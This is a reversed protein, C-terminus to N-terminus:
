EVLCTAGRGLYRQLLESYSCEMHSILLLVIRLFLYGSLSGIVLAFFGDMGSMRTLQQPLLLVPLALFSYFFMYGAQRGSMKGNKINM